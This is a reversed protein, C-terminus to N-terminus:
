FVEAPDVVWVKGVSLVASVACMVATVGFILGGRPWTIELPLGTWSGLLLYALQSLLMGPIFAFVSLLLAQILVVETLYRNSFGIAKLTAYENLHDSIDASLIQWCIIVGVAFGVVLGLLFIFGVPTREQWYRQEMCRYEERTLVRVDDQLQDRLVAKVAQPDAGSRLRILGVDVDQRPDSSSTYGDFYEAYNDTSMFLHGNTAFDTGLSFTGILTIERGSLDTQFQGEHMGYYRKSRIDWLATRPRRLQDAYHCVEPLLVPATALDPSPDFSLVRIVRHYPTRPVLRGLAELPSPSPPPPILWEAPRYYLPFVAEVDSALGQAQILRTLPFPEVNSLVDKAPNIMILECNMRDILQVVSDMLATWFGHEVFMLVVAFGVGALYVGFRLPRYTLNRLALLFQPKMAM